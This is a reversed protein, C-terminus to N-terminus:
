SFRLGPRMVSWGFESRAGSRVCITTIDNEHAAPPRGPLDALTGITRGEAAAIERVRRHIVLAEDLTGHSLNIRVADMGVRIMGRITDPSESPPGITALIKTRRAMSTLGPNSDTAVM